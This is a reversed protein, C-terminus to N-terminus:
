PRNEFKKLFDQITLDIESILVLFSLSLTKAEASPNILTRIKQNKIVQIKKTSFRCILMLLLTESEFVSGNPHVLPFVIPMSCVLEELYPSLYEPFFSNKQLYNYLEEFFHVLKPYEEKFKLSFYVRESELRLSSDIELNM